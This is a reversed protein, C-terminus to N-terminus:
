LFILLKRKLLTLIPHFIVFNDWYFTACSLQLQGIKPRFNAIKPVNKLIGVEFKTQGANLNLNILSSFPWIELFKSGMEALNNSFITGFIKTAKILFGLINTDSSKLGRVAAFLIMAFYQNYGFNRSKSHRVSSFCSNLYLPWKQTKEPALITM